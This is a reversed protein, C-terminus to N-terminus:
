MARVSLKRLVREWTDAHGLLDDFAAAELNVPGDAPNLTRKNHCTVCYQNVFARSKAAEPTTNATSPAEAGSRAPAAPPQEKRTQALLVGAIGFALLATTIGIKRALREPHRM